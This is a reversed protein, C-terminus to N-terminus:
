SLWGMAWTAAVWLLAALGGARLLRAVVGSGLPSAANGLRAEDAAAKIEIRRLM